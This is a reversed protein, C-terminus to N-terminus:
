SGRPAPSLVPPSRPSPDRASAFGILAVITGLTALTALRDPGFRAKLRDLVLSGVISGLGITGFLIGYITPGNHMQHRAVLPLLAWYASAFPLLAVASVM